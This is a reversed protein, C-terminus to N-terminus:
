AVKKDKFWEVTKKIGSELNTKPEYGLVNRAKDISARRKAVHDWSRREGVQIGASNNALQNILVALDYIKTEAENGINFVEGAAEQVCAARIIGDVTDEVFTFSRTEEGTGTIQLPQNNLAKAVFNPIVNRYKGPLEGPGYSNFLRVIVIPLNYMRHFWRTYHEGTLKSIAYPTGLDDLRSSEETLTGEQNGYVCSSSVYVFKKVKLHNALELVHLTGLINTKLDTEPNEVSNQNAFRAALHFIYEIAYHSLDKVAEKNRIDKRLLIIKESKPMNTEHSSSLNDIVYVRRCGRELLEKVLNSGIAGCGGTVLVEKDKLEEGTYGSM